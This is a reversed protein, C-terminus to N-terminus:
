KCDSAITQRLRAQEAARGKDDLIEREGKANTRAIRVGDDLIKLQGKARSCNEAKAAALKAEEAKAKAAEADAEKKRKAELAPDTRPASAAASGPLSVVAPTGEVLSPTTPSPPVARPTMGPPRELIASQPVGAPPPRDSYIMRGNADRWKWQAAAPLTCGLGVLLALATTVSRSLHSM